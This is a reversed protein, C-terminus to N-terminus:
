FKDSNSFSRYLSVKWSQTKFTVAFGFKFNAYFGCLLALDVAFKIYKFPAM